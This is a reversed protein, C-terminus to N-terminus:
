AFDGSYMSVCFMKLKTLAVLFSSDTLSTNKLRGTSVSSASFSIRLSESSAFVWIISEQPSTLSKSELNPSLTRAKFPSAFESTRRIIFSTVYRQSFKTNGTPSMLKLTSNKRLCSPFLSSVNSCIRSSYAVLNIGSANSLYSSSSWSVSVSSMRSLIVSNFPASSSMINASEYTSDVPLTSLSALRRARLSSCNSASTCFYEALIISSSSLRRALVRNSSILVNSAMSFACFDNESRLPLSMGSCLLSLSFPQPRLPMTKAKFSEM